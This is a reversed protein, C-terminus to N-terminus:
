PQCIPCSVQWAPLELLARLALCRGPSHCHWRRPSPCYRSGILLYRESTVQLNM